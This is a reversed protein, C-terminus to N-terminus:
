GNDTNGPAEMSLFNSSGSRLTAFQVPSFDVCKVITWANPEDRRSSQLETTDPM